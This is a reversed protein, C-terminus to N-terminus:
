RVLSSRGTGSLRTVTPGLSRTSTCQRGTFRGGCRSSTRRAVAMIRRAPKGRTKVRRIPMATLECWHPVATAPSSGAVLTTPGSQLACSSSLRQTASLEQNGDEAATLGASVIAAFASRIAGMTAPM